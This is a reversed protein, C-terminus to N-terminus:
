FFVVIGVKIQWVMMFIFIIIVFFYGFWVVCLVVVFEYFFIGFFELGLFYEFIGDELYDYEVFKIGLMMLMMFIFFLFLGDQSM